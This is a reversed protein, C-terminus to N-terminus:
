YKKLVRHDDREPDYQFTENTTFIHPWKDHVKRIHRSVASQDIDLEEAIQKQTMGYEPQIGIYCLADIKNIRVDRMKNLLEKENVGYLYEAKLVFLKWREVLSM